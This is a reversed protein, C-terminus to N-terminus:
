CDLFFLNLVCNCHSSIVMDQRCKQKGRYVKFPQCDLWSDVEEKGAGDERLSVVRDPVTKCPCLLLFLRQSCHCSDVCPVFSGATVPVNSTNCFSSKNNMRFSNVIKFVWSNLCTRVNVLFNIHKMSANLLVVAGFKLSNLYHTQDLHSPSFLLRTHTITCSHTTWSSYLSRVLKM